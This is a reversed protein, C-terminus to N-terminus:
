SAKRQSPFYSSYLIRNEVAAKRYGSLDTAPQLLVFENLAGVLQLSTSQLECLAAAPPLPLPRSAVCTAASISLVASVRDDVDTQVDPNVSAFDFVITLKDSCSGGTPISM